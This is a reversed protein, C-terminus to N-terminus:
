LEVSLASTRLLVDLDYGPYLRMQSLYELAVVETRSPPIVEERLPGLVVIEPM